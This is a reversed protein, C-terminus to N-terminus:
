LNRLHHVPLVIHSDSLESKLPWKLINVKATLHSAVSLRSRPPLPTIQLKELESAATHWVPESLSPLSVASATLLCFVTM